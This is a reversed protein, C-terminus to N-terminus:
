FELAITLDLKQIAGAFTAECSLTLLRAQKDSDSVELVNPATVTRPHDPSFHGNLVGIELRNKVAAVILNIGANTYPIVNQAVFLALIDEEMRLKVWDITTQVDIFYPAGFATTGKSTFSLGKNRGYINGSDAYINAAQTSSVADYTIGELVRYAWIGRGNPADLNMGLGSSIWAGDLYGNAAGSSTAHYMGFSRKYGAVKLLDNINGPAGTLVDADASQYGFVKTRAATWAAADVIDASVRSEINTGYWDLGQTSAYAEIANLAVTYDGADAVALLGIYIQDVGDDQAFVSSAWYYVDPEAGVTFGAAVVDAVSTYPGNIRTANVTHSFVGLVNGFSFRDPSAGAVNVSVDVFETIAAAM